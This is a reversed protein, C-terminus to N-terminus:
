GAATGSGVFLPITDRNFAALWENLGILEDGNVDVAKQILRVHDPAFDMSELAMEFQTVSFKAVGSPNYTHYANMVMKCDWGKSNSICLDLSPGLGALQAAVDAAFEFDNTLVQKCVEVSEQCRTTITQGNTIKPVPNKWLIFPFISFIPLELFSVPQTPDSIVPIYGGIIRSVIDSMTLSHGLKEAFSKAKAEPYGSTSEL